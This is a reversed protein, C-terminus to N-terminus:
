CIDDKEAAVWLIKWQSHDGVRRLKAANFKCHLKHKKGAEPNMTNFSSATLQRPELRGILVCCECDLFPFMAITAVCTTILKMKIDKLCRIM